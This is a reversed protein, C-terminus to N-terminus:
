AEALGNRMAYSALETRNAMGTKDLIRHVHTSVTYPSIFLREGIEANTYGRAVLRLVEVERHSLGDPLEPPPANGVSQRLEKGRKGVLVSGTKEASAALVDLLASAEESDGPGSRQLLTEALHLLLWQEDAVEGKERCVELGQRLHGLADTVRGATRALLGALRRHEGRGSERARSVLAEYLAVAGEADGDIVALVGMAQEAYDRAQPVSRADALTEQAFRRAEDLWLSRSTMFMRWCVFQAVSARQHDRSHPPRVIDIAEAFAADGAPFNGVSYALSARNCLLYTNREGLPLLSLCIGNLEWARRWDAARWSARELAWYAQLLTGRDRLKRAAVVLEEAHVTQERVPEALVGDRTCVALLMRCKARVDDQRAAAEMAQEAYKRVGEYDSMQEAISVLFVLAHLELWASGHSRALEVARTLDQHQVAPTSRPCTVNAHKVLLEAERLSGKGAMALARLCMPELGGLRQYNHYTFLPSAAVAVARDPLGAKQYLEFARVLSGADSADLLANQARGLGFWLDAAQEDAASEGRLALARRFCDRADEYAFGALAHEGALALFRVAREACVAPGALVLHGAIERAHEAAQEAYTDELASAIREHLRPRAALPTEEALADRVLAHEFRFVEQEAEVEALLGAQVAQGVLALVEERSAAELVREVVQLSFELGVAASAALLEVCRGTLRRLRARVVDRVSEPLRIQWGGAPPAATEGLRGEDELLRVVATMLFPNGETRDLVVDALGDPAKGAGVSALYSRVDEAALGTLALRECPAVRCLDGLTAELKGGSRVETERFTCALLLPSDAVDHSLFSLFTLSSVDSWHLDDLVIALPREASAARLFGAMADHFRFQAALPDQVSGPPSLPGVDAAVAPLMQAIVPAGAGMLRRVARPGRLRLLERTVLVWSWYAPAGEAERSGAWAADAGRRAAELCLERALRTKGIGPEGCILLVGGRGAVAEELALKARALEGGRGVFPTRRDREGRHGRRSQATQSTGM